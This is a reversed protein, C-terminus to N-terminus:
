PQIQRWAPGQVPLDAWIIKNSDSILSKSIIFSSCMKINFRETPNVKINQKQIDSQAVLRVKFAM